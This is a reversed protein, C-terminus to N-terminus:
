VFRDIAYVQVYDDGLVSRFQDYLEYITTSQNDTMGIKMRNSHSTCGIAKTMEILESKKLTITFCVLPDSVEAITLTSKM